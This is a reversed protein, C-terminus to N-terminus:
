TSFVTGERSYNEAAKARKTSSCCSFFRFTQVLWSHLLMWVASCKPTEYSCHFARLSISATLIVGVCAIVGCRVGINAAAM